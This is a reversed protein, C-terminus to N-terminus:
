FYIFFFWTSSEAVSSETASRKRRDGEDGDENKRKM